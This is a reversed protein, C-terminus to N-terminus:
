RFTRLFTPAQTTMKITALILAFQGVAFSGKNDKVNFITGDMLQGTATSNFVTKTKRIMILSGIAGNPSILLVELAVSGIAKRTKIQAVLGPAPPTTSIIMTKTEFQKLKQGSTNTLKRM